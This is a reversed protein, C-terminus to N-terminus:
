KKTVKQCNRYHCSREAAAPANGCSSETYNKKTYGDNVTPRYSFQNKKKKKEDFVAVLFSQQLLYNCLSTFSFFSGCFHVQVNLEIKKQTDQKWLYSISCSQRPRASFTHQYILQLNVRHRPLGALPMPTYLISLLSFGKSFRPGSTLEWVSSGAEKRTQYVDCRQAAVVGRREDKAKNKLQFM